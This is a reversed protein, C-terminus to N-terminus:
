CSQMASKSKQAKPNGRALRLIPNEFYKASLWALPLSVVLIISVYFIFVFLSNNLMPVSNKEFQELVFSLGFIVLSQIFYLFYSYKGLTTFWPVISRVRQILLGFFLSLVVVGIAQSNSGLGLPMPLSMVSLLYCGMLVWELTSIRKLLEPWLIGASYKSYLSVSAVGLLFYFFTSYFGLRIWGMLIQDIFGPLSDHINLAILTFANISLLLVLLNKLSLKRVFSFALYHAMEAQISWGGPIVSNWLLPSLWATFTLMMLILLAWGTVGQHNELFINVQLGPPTVNKVLMFIVFFALWLPVIRAIRKRWYHQKKLSDNPAFGYLSTILAGSIFFFLEVGYLGLESIPSFISGSDGSVIRAQQGSHVAIVGLIALGRIVDFYENRHRSKVDVAQAM